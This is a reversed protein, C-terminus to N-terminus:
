HTDDRHIEHTFKRGGERQHADNKLAAAADELTVDAGAAARGEIRRVQQECQRPKPEKNWDLDTADTNRKCNRVLM